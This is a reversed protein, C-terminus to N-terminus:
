DDFLSWPYTLTAFDGFGRRVKTLFDETEDIEGLHLFPCFAAVLNDSGEVSMGSLAKELAVLSWGSMTLVRYAARFRIWGCATLRVEVQRRDVMSQRRIVLGLKELSQLMRSVTPRTVGLVRRLASQYTLPARKQGDDTLAFLLDFRAATLGLARLRERGVRLTGHYARKLDFFIANMVRGLAGGMGARGGRVM